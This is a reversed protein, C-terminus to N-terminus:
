AFMSTETISSSGGPLFGIWVDHEIVTAPITPPRGSFIVPKAVVQFNHDGGLIAVEPAIMVYNGLNVNPCIWAGYGIFGYEGMTLDSSIDRPKQIDNTTSIHSLGWRFNRISARLIRAKLLLAQNNRIFKLM